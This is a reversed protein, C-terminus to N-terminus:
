EGYEEISEPAASAGHTHSALAKVSSVRGSGTQSQRGATTLGRGEAAKWV